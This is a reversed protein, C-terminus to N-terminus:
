FVKYEGERLTVIPLDEKYNKLEQYAKDWDINPANYDSQWHVIVKIPLIGLGECIQLTDLNYYYKSMLDAGASTGALVKGSLNKIWDKNKKLIELTYKEENGGRIYIADSGKVQESFNEENAMELIVEKDKLHKAVNNEDEEFAKQWSEKPRAFLCELVKIPEKFGKAMELWFSKGEDPAKWPYGGVLIYKISM